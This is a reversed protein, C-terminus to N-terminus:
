LSKKSLIKCRNQTDHKELCELIDTANLGWAAYKELDNLLWRVKNMLNRTNGGRKVTGAPPKAFKNASNWLHELVEQKTYKMNPTLPSRELTAAPPVLNEQVVFHFAQKLLSM